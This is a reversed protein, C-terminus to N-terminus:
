PKLMSASLIVLRMQLASACGCTVISPADSRAPQQELAFGYATLMGSTMAAAALCLLIM